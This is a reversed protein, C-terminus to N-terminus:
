RLTEKAAGRRSAHIPSLGAVLGSQFLFRLLATVPYAPDVAVAARAAQNFSRGARLLLVATAGADDLPLECPDDDRDRYLLLRTSGSLETLSAIAHEDANKLALKRIEHVPWESDFLVVSSPFRLSLAGANEVLMRLFTTWEVVPADPAEGIEALTWELRAVEAAFLSGELEGRGSLFRPFDHGYVSLRPDRPPRAAVYVSAMTDFYREGVLIRTAPFVKALGELLSVRFHNRYVNVRQRAPIRDSVIEDLLARSPAAHIAERLESQIELLTLM